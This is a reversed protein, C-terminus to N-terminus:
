MLTVTVYRDQLPRAVGSAGIRWGEHHLNSATSALIVRPRRRRWPAIAGTGEGDLASPAHMSSRERSPARLHAPRAPQQATQDGQGRRESRGQSTAEHAPPLHVYSAFPVGRFYRRIRFRDTPWSYNAAGEELALRTVGRFAPAGYDVDGYPRSDSSAGERPTLLLHDSGGRAMLYSEGNAHRLQLLADELIRLNKCASSICDNARGPEEALVPIFFLDQPM